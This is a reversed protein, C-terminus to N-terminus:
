SVDIGDHVSSGRQGFSSTVSGSDLPWNLRPAGAMGEDGSPRRNSASKPTVLDVPVHEAAGPIRLEQGVEIRSPDRLKNIHAIQAVSVGYAKGIRFLTEGPKVRHYVGRSCSIAPLLLAVVLSGVERRIWRRSDAM